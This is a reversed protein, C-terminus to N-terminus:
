DNIIFDAKLFKRALKARDVSFLECVQVRPVFSLSESFGPSGHSQFVDEGTATQKQKGRRSQEAQNNYLECLMWERFVVYWEYSPNEGKTLVAM